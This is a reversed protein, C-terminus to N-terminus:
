SETPTTSPSPRPAPQRAVAVLQTCLRRALPTRSTLRDLRFFLPLLPSWRPLWRLGAHESIFPTISWTIEIDEFGARALM